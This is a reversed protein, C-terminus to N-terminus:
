FLLYLLYFDMINIALPFYEEFNNMKDQEMLKKIKKNKKKM